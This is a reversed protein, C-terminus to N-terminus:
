PPPASSLQERLLAVTQELEYRRQGESTDLDPEQVASIAVRLKRERAREVEQRVTETLQEQYRHAADWHDLPFGQRAVVSVEFRRRGQRAWAIHRESDATLERYYLRAVVLEGAQEGIAVGHVAEDKGLDLRRALLRRPQDLAIQEERTVLGPSSQSEDAELPDPLALLMWVIVALPLLLSAVTWGFLLYSVAGM